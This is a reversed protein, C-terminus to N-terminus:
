TNEIGLFDNVEKKNVEYWINLDIRDIVPDILFISFPILLFFLVFYSFIIFFKRYGKGCFFKYLMLSSYLFCLSIWVCFYMTSISFYSNPLGIISRLIRIGLMSISALIISIIILILIVLIIKINKKLDM